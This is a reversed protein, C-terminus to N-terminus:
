PFLLIGRGWIRPSMIFFPLDRTEIGCYLRKNKMNIGLKLIRVLLTGPLGKVYFKGQCSLIISLDLSSYFCYVQNGTKRYMLENDMHIGPKM